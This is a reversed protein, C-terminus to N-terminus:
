KRSRLNGLIILDDFKGNVTHEDGHLENGTRRALCQQHGVPRNGGILVLSKDEDHIFLVRDLPAIHCRVLENAIHPFHLGAQSGVIPQDDGANLGQPRFLM